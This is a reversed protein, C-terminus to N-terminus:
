NTEPTENASGSGSCQSTASCFSFCQRDAPAPMEEVFQASQLLYSASAHEDFPSYKVMGVVPVNGCIIDIDVGHVCVKDCEPPLRPQKSPLQRDGVSM